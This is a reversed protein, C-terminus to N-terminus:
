PQEPLTVPVAVLRGAEPTVVRTARGVAAEFTITVPALPALGCLVFRGAADTRGEGASASVVGIAQQLGAVGVTVGALGAGSQRDRVLGRVLTRRAAPLTDGCAARLQEAVPAVALDVTAQGNRELAVSGRPSALALTDLRAHRFAVQYTGTPLDAFSYRGASDSLAFFATGVLYVAAGSLPRDTTRDVITGVLTAADSSWARGAGLDVLTVEGGDEKIGSLVKVLREDFRQSRESSQAAVQSVTRAETGVMPMRIAWRRVIWAGSPLRRFELRGGTSEHDMGGPMRTYKYELEALEGSARDLWLTGEIDTTKRKEVPTFSVGIRGAQRDKPMPERLRLCHSGLFEDSLIVQADPAYFTWYDGDRAVYGVQELRAAPPAVFPRSTVGTRTQVRQDVLQKGDAAYTRETMALTMPYRRSQETLSVATLAKRAEQWVDLLVGASDPRLVCRPKGSVQVDALRTAVERLVLRREITEGAAAEFAESTTSAFAVRDIRLRYRGAGPADLRFTGANDALVTVRAAGAADLLVVIAGPVTGGDSGIVTGRVTQASASSATLMLLAGCWRWRM